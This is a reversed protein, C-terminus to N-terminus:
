QGAALGGGQDPAASPQSAAQAAAQDYTPVTNLNQTPQPQTISSMERITKVAPTLKVVHDTGEIRDARANELRTLAQENTQDVVALISRTHTDQAKATNLTAQSSAQEALARDKAMKAQASAIALNQAMQAAPNPGGSQQAQAYKKQVAVKLVQVLQSPLPSFDLVAGIADPTDLIPMLVPFMGELTEWTKEKVNPSTPAEAIVVEYDGSTRDRLLKVMQMSGDTGAIRILRGDSFYDQIIHLRGKGIHKKFLRYSDMQPALITMGAQKRQSELVGPQNADRMGLLELNIGTSDKISSIAFELLDRYGSPNGTGPKAMIKGKSIADPETFTIADAQSYTEQAERTDSFADSEAFVGGKATSNLIHMTQGLWKNAWRQPDRIVRIIGFFTGRNKDRVGTICNWSFADRIPAPRVEGLIESGIYAQKYVRRNQEVWNYQGPGDGETLGHEKAMEKYMKFQDKTFSQIQQTLPDNVRIYPEMEIWQAHVIHVKAKASFNVTNRDGKDRQLKEEYSETPRTSDSVGSVWYADLDEDDAKIGKSKLFDRAEMLPMERVRWLRRANSLNKKKANCDWFMELPDIEEEVYKGDPDEDYDIRQETWGMGCTNADGYAASQEEEADCGDSMWKSASSLVENKTVEGEANGRPIFVTEERNAIELGCVMQLLPLTRNFTIVPRGKDKLVAKEEETWQHGAVFDFDEKAADRWDSSHSSDARFWEKLTVLLDGNDLKSPESVDENEAGAQPTNQDLTLM